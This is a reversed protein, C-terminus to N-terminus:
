QITIDSDDRLQNLDLILSREYMDPPKSHAHLVYVTIVHRHLVSQYRGRPKPGVVCFMRLKTWYRLTVHLYTRM